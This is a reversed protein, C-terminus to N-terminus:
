RQSRSRGSPGRAATGLDRLARKVGQPLYPSAARAIAHAVRRRRQQWLQMEKARAFRRLEAPRILEHDDERAYWENVGSRRFHVFGRDALYATVASDRRPWNDPNLSNNEAIVIRPRYVELSFGKLVDLEHGEVDITIFQVEPFGADSLIDDLPRTRVTIEEIRGGAREIWERHEPSADLTSMEEVNKAVLFTAEGDRASAACTVVQCNRRRKIEAACEPVPEILLCDWGKREFAYTASGTVGDHAGVEVCYGHTRAGFVEDLSRDESFQAYSTGPDSATVAPPRGDM